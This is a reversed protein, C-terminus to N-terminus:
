MVIKLLSAIAFWVQTLAADSDTASKVAATFVALNLCAAVATLRLTRETAPRQQQQELRPKREKKVSVRHGGNRRADRM